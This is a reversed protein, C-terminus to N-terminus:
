PRLSQIFSFCSLSSASFLSAFADSYTPYTWYVNARHKLHDNKRTPIQTFKSQSYCFPNKRICYIFGIMIRTKYGLNTEKSLHSDGFTFLSGRSFKKLFLVITIGHLFRM